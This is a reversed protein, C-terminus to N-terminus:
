VDTVGVREVSTRYLLTYIPYYSLSGYPRRLWRALLGVGDRLFPRYMAIWYWSGARKMEIGRHWVVARKM